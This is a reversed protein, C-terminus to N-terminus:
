TELEKFSHKGGGGPVRSHGGCRGRFRQFCKSLKMPLNVTVLIQSGFAFNSTLQKSKETKEILNLTVQLIKM